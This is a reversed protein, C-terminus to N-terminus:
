ILAVKDINKILETIEPLFHGAGTLGWAIRSKESRAAM